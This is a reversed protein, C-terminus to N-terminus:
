FVYKLALQMIRPGADSSIVGVNSGGFNTSPANWNPHNLVNFLDWRIQVSRHENLAITRFVSADLNFMGPDPITFTGADGFSGM